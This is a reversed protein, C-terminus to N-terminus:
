WNYNTCSMIGKQFDREFKFLPKVYKKCLLCMCPSFIDVAKITSVFLVDSYSFLCDRVNPSSAVEHFLWGTFHKQQKVFGIMLHGKQQFTLITFFAPCVSDQYGYQGGQHWVLHREHPWLHGQCCVHRQVVEKGQHSCCRAASGAAPLANSPNLCAEEVPWRWVTSHLSLVWLSSTEESGPTMRWLMMRLRRRATCTSRPM